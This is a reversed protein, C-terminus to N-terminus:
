RLPSGGPKSVGVWGQKQPDWREIIVADIGVGRQPIAAFDFTGYVGTWGHLTNVYDRIQVPTADFGYKRLADLLILTGDWVQNQGAEPAIGTSKFADLFRNVADKMAGKPLQDPAFAPLGPFLLESPVIGTYQKMQAYSMNGNTSVIPVNLGADRIGRLVTGFPAGTTWTILVDPVAATIRAMQGAISVDAPNFHERDVLTLARNEPLAFVTDIGHDADQGTTDTSTIVAVKKFGRERLYRAVAAILDLTSAGASYVYSGPAPHLGPSYCYTVPGDKLLPVMASCIASLTSGLVIPPNKAIVGNLLQVAVAPSSQDDQVVFKIPRGRIGGAKNVTAEIVTLADDDAKGLFAAGGTLPLIANIEYPDAARGLSPIVAVAVACLGALWIRM